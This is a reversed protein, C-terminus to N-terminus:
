HLSTKIRYTKLQSNKAFKWVSGYKRQTCYACHWNTMTRWLVKRERGYIQWVLWLRHMAFKRIHATLLFLVHYVVTDVAYTAFLSPSVTCHAVLEGFVACSSYHSKPTASHISSGRVVRWRSPPLFQVRSRSRFTCLFISNHNWLGKIFNVLNTQM